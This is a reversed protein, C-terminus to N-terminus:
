LGLPPREARAFHERDTADLFVEAVGPVRRRLERDIETSVDEIRESDVGATLDIRAAVLLRDPALAMTLLQLVDEVEPPARLVDLIEAREDPSAARGVLLSSADRALLFAALLLMAAVVLAAAGEFAADGTLQHLLVGGIAVLNGTV